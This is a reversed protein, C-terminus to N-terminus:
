VRPRKKTTKNICKRVISGQDHACTQTLRSEISNKKMQDSTQTSFEVTQNSPRQQRAFKPTSLFSLLLLYYIIPSRLIQSNPSPVRGQAM